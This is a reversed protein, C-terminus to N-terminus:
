GGRGEFPGETTRKSELNIRDSLIGFKICIGTLHFFLTDNRFPSLFFNSARMFDNSFCVEQGCIRVYDFGFLSAM